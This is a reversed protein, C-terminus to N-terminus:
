RDGARVRAVWDPDVLREQAWQSRMFEYFALSPAWGPAATLSPFFAVHAVSRTDGPDVCWAGLSPFGTLELAEARNLGDALMVAEDETSRMPLRLLQFWGQGYGPHPQDLRATYLATMGGADGELMQVAVPKASTFPFETTVGTEDGNAFFGSRQLL